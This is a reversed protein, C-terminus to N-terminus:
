EYILQQIMEGNILTTYFLFLNVGIAGIKNFFMAFSNPFVVLCLVSIIATILATVQWVTSDILIDKFSLATIIGIVSTVLFLTFCIRKNWQADLSKLLWSQAPQADNIKVGFSAVVGQLHGIGHVLLAIFVILKITKTTM